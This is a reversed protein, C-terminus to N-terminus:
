TNHRLKFAKKRDSAQQLIQEQRAKLERRKFGEISVKNVMIM